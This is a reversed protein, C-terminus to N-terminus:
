KYGGVCKIIVDEIYSISCICDNNIWEKIIAMIGNVYFALVYDREENAINFRDLIPDLIYYRLNKYRDKANMGSPNSFSAKFIRRNEKVFTLYPTLYKSRVLKLEDLSVEDMKNIFARTDENFYKLFENNIYDMTEDVLDNINDYHLYFTSRNFGAKNCIEKITIYEYDKTELLALLAEDFFSATNFYKSRNKDM